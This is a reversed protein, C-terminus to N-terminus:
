EIVDIPEFDICCFDSNTYFVSIERSVHRYCKGVRSHEKSNDQKQLNEDSHNIEEWYRCNGCYREDSM